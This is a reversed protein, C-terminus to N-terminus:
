GLKVRKIQKGNSSSLQITYEGNNLKSLDAVGSFNFEKGLNKTFIVKEADNKVSLVVNNGSGAYSFKLKNNKVESIYAQFDKVTPIQNGIVVKDTYSKNGSTIKFFYEGSGLGKLDFIQMFGKTRSYKDKYVLKGKKFIELRVKQSQDIMIGFAVKTSNGVSNLSYRLDVGKEVKILEKSVTGSSAFTTVSGFVMAGSLMLATAQRKVNRMIKM